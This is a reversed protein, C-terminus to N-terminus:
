RKVQNCCVKFHSQAWAKGELYEFCEFGLSAGLEGMYVGGWWWPMWGGM